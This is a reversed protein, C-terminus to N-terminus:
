SYYPDTNGWISLVLLVCFSKMLKGRFQSVSNPITVDLFLIGPVVELGGYFIGLIEGPLWWLLPLAIGVHQDGRSICRAGFM